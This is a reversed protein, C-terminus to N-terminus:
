IVSMRVFRFIHLDNDIVEPIYHVSHEADSYKKNINEKPLRLYIKKNKFLRSLIFVGQFSIDRSMRYDTIIYGYNKNVFSYVLKM